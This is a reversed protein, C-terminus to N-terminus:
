DLHPSGRGPLLNRYGPLRQLAARATHPRTPTPRQPITSCIIQEHENISLSNGKSPGSSHPMHLIQPSVPQTQMTEANVAKLDADRRIAPPNPLLIEGTSKKMGTVGANCNRLRRARIEALKGGSTPAMERSPPSPSPTQDSLSLLKSVEPSDADTESLDPSPSQVSSGPSNLYKHCTSEKEEEEKKDSIFNVNYDEEDYESSSDDNGHIIRLIQPQSEKEIAMLRKSHEERWSRLEAFVDSRDQSSTEEIDYTHEPVYSGLQTCPRSHSSGVQLKIKQRRARVAQLPNGCFPVRGVGHTLDSTQHDQTDPDSSASSPRSNSSSSFPRSTAPRSSPSSFSLSTGPRQASCPSSFGCVSAVREEILELCDSPSGTISASNKITEKLLTWDEMTAISCRLEEEETTADDLYLLQPILKRVASRYNYESVESTRPDPCTCVPNGELSLTTLQKCLGLFQIQVLDDVSNGELDLLELQELMSVQSLESVNNYAVYLEKLSSLSSIGDLDALGCRVLSLVQIHSLTTGLDRVSLISSNNMKLQVLKPLYVGFNGLTNQQTDVCMELTTVQDLDDSGSLSRLKEPSLYLEALIDTDVATAPSPNVQGPGDIETVFSRATGPRRDPLTNQSCTM